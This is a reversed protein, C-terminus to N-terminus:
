GQSWAHPMQKKGGEQEGLGWQTGCPVTASGASSSGLFNVRRGSGLALGRSSVRPAESGGGRSREELRQGGGRGAACARAVRFSRATEWHQGMRALGEGKNLSKARDLVGKGRRWSFHEVKRLARNEPQKVSGQSDLYTDNQIVM